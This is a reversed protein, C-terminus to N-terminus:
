AAPRINQNLRFLNAPDYQRKLARLRDYTREGYAARVRDEGEDGLFNVYVGGTALPELAYFFERAWGIHRETEHRETWTSVVNFAFEADRHSFATADAPVRRVAGGMHHIHTQALPSGARATHEVFADIAEDSLAPLYGSKWYNNLGPPAGPDLMSQLATYPMSGLADAAPPGFRRLQRVAREGEEGADTCCAVIAVVPRGQLGRPVFPAPPATIFAALTTLEDPASRVFDRWFRLIERARAVEHLVLGGLVTSVPHPRYEFSTAVGFNGGGGRLGFFLEANETACARLKRGDATVLEAAELNDCTLGHCRMLWGIGGGLTLGAIGTTSVLGGTTALGAEQTARDFEGWRAGAGAIARRGERDVRVNKMATLDIVLGDDCMANGAVGHGGSRVALPLGSAQAFELVTAVDDPDACRAIASPYRDIMGNWLKRAEDYEADKPGIVHGRLERRLRGIDAALARKIKVQSM